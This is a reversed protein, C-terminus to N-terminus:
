GELYHGHHVALERINEATRRQDLDLLVQLLRDLSAGRGEKELWIHLLQHLRDEYPLEEKGKVVNDNLNLHRFFKRHYDM